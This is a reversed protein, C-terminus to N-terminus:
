GDEHFNMCFSSCEVFEARSAHDVIDKSAIKKHGCFNNKDPM